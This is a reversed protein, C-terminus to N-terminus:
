RASPGALAEGGLERLFEAPFRIKVGEYEGIGRLDKDGTVLYEAKAAVAAELFKDDDPDRCVAVTKTPFVVPAERLLGVLRDADLKGIGKVSLLEPRSLVDAVEEIIAPSVVLIFRDLSQVLRANVGKPNILARLFVNTDFIVRPRGV